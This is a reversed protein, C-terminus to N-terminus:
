GGSLIREGLNQRAFLKRVRALQEETDVGISCYETKVVKIQYGHELARLMELREFRELPSQPLETFTALFDGRYAYIGIHRLYIVEGDERTKGRRFRHPILLRDAVFVSVLKLIRALIPSLHSSKLRKGACRIHPNRPGVLYCDCSSPFM